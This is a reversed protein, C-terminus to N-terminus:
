VIDHLIDHEIDFVINILFYQQGRENLQSYPYPNEVGTGGLQNTSHFPGGIWWDKFETSRIDHVMDHTDIPHLWLWM